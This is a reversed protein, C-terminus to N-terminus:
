RDRASRAPACIADLAAGYHAAAGAGAARVVLTRPTDGTGDIAVELWRPPAADPCLDLWEVATVGDESPLYELLGLARIAELGAEGGLRYLDLHYFPLRGGQHINLLTFTPSTVRTSAPVGLGRGLGGALWTKGAGIPGRLAVVDGPALAAALAAGADRV